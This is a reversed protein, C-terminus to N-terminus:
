KRYYAIFAENVRKYQNRSISVSEGNDLICENKGVRSIRALNVLVGRRAIVFGNEEFERQLSGIGAKWQIKDNEYAMEVYHGQAELYWIDRFPIKVVEDRRELIFCPIKQSQQREAIEQLVSFFEEEVVPKVLYRVAGVEYGEIAYEWLGTLFLIVAEKDRERIRRALEMGSINGMQIDLIYVSYPFDNDFSFIMQEASTYGDIECIIQEKKAWTHVLSCIYELQTKDDECIALKLANSM